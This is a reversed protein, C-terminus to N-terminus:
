LCVRYENAFIDKSRRRMGAWLKKNRYMIKKNIVFDSKAKM